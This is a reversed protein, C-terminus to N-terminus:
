GPAPTNGSPPGPTRSVDSVWRARVGWGGFDESVAVLPVDHLDTLRVYVM